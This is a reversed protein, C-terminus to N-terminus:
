FPSRLLAAGGTRQRRPPPARATRQPSGAPAGRSAQPERAVRQAQVRWPSATGGRGGAGEGRRGRLQVAAAWATSSKYGSRSCQKVARASRVGQKCSCWAGQRGCLGGVLAYADQVCAGQVAGGGVAWITHSPCPFSNQRGGGLHMPLLASHPKGPCGEDSLGRRVCSKGADDAEPSPRGAPQGGIAGPAGPSQQRVNECTALLWAKTSAPVPCRIWAL